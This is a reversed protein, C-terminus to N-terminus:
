TTADGRERERKEKVTRQQEEQELWAEQPKESRELREQRSSQAYRDDDSESRNTWFITWVSKQEVVTGEDSVNRAKNGM